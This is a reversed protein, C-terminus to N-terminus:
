ILYECLAIKYGTLLTINWSGLPVLYKKWIDNCHQLVYWLLLKITLYANSADLLQSTEAETCSSVTYFQGSTVSRNTAWMECLYTLPLPHFTVFIQIDFEEVSNNSIACSKTGLICKYMKFYEQYYDM